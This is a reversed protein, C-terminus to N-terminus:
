KFVLFMGVHMWTWKMCICLLFSQLCFLPSLLHPILFHLKNCTRNLTSFNPCNTALKTSLKIQKGFWPQLLWPFLPHQYGLVWHFPTFGTSSHTLLNRAWKAWPLDQICDHWNQHCHSRLSSQNLWEIQWNSQSHFDLSLSFAPILKAPKSFISM